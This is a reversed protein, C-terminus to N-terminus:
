LCAVADCRKMGTKMDAHTYMQYHKQYERRDDDDDDVEDEDSTAQLINNNSQDAAAEQIPTHM